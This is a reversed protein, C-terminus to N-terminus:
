RQGERHNAQGRQKETERQAERTRDRQAKREKQIEEYKTKGTNRLTGKVKKNDRM